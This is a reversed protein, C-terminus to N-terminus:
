EEKKIADTIQKKIKDEDETNWLKFLAFNVSKAVRIIAQDICLLGICTLVFAFAVPVATIYMLMSIQPVTLKAQQAAFALDDFKALLQDIKQEISVPDGQAHSMENITECRVNCVLAFSVLVLLLNM